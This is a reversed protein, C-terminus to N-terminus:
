PYAMFIFPRPKLNDSYMFGWFFITENDGSFASWVVYNFAKLM